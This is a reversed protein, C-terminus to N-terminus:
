ESVFLEVCGEGIPPEASLDRRSLLDRGSVLCIRISGPADVRFAGPLPRRNGCPLNAGRSFPFHVTEDQVVVVEYAAEQQPGCTVLLRLRDKQSIEQPAERLQGGREAVLSVLPIRPTGKTRERPSDPISFLAIALVAASPVGLFVWRGTWRHRRIHSLPILRPQPARIIQHYTAEIERDHQTWVRVKEAHEPPLEGLALRELDLWSPRERPM